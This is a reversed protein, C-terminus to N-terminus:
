NTNGNGNVYGTPKDTSADTSIEGEIQQQMAQAADPFSEAALAAFGTSNDPADTRMQNLTDEIRMTTASTVTTHNVVVALATEIPTLRQAIAHIQENIQKVHAVANNINQQLQASDVGMSQLLMDMGLPM